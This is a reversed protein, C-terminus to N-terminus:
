AATVVVRVIRSQSFAQDKPLYDEYNRARRHAHERESAIEAKLDRVTDAAYYTGFPDDDWFTYVTCEYYHFTEGAAMGHMTEYREPMTRTRIDPDYAYTAM